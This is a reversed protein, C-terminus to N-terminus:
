TPWTEHTFHRCMHPPANNQRVHSENKNSGTWKRGSSGCVHPRRDLFGVFAGLRDAINTLQLRKSAASNLALTVHNTRNAVNSPTLHITKWQHFSILSAAGIMQLPSNQAFGFSSLKNREMFYRCNNVIYRRPTHRYCSWARWLRLFPSVIFKETKESIRFRFSPISLLHASKLAWM